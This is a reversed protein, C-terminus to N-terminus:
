VKPCLYRPKWRPSDQWTIIFNGSGDMAVSPFERQGYGSDDDVRFNFGIPSGLSNYRQAYIRDGTNWTIVFNGYNDAAINPEFYSGLIPNDNAKFNLGIPTGSSNFRQAYVDWNSSRFEKWTVLFNGFGDMSTAPSHQEATFIVDHNTKFNSNLSTGISDYRQVYIDANLYRYDQWAIVFNGSGDMAIAPEVQAATGTDDNVKFYSGLLTGSSDFRQAYIDSYNNLYNFTEWTIVFNGFYDMSIDPNGQYTPGVYSNVKFNSGIPNGSLDFRQAYIDWGATQWTIIFSSTIDMAIAPFSFQHTSRTPDNVRFNSSLPTGSSDYRQVYTEYKANRYDTWTIVFDGSSDITVDPYYQDATGVDDNVRFNTGIRAGSPDFRQAYIDSNGNRIDSWTIIFNSSRDGDVACAYQIASGADDNVKFNSGLPNGLSDYRQAYIDRNSSGNREDEWSIVFRSSGNMTIAPRWQHGTGALDSVKFNSDLPTGFLDYRQVYINYKGSREDTWTIIFSGGPDRSIAPSSQDATGIDDNVLFDDIIGNMRRFGKLNFDSNSQNSVLPLFSFLLLVVSSFFVKFIPRM